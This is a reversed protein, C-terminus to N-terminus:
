QTARRRRANERRKANACTMCWRNKGDPATYFHHSTKLHGNRCTDRRANQSSPGDGRLCNVAQTVVEMHAPNVCRRNKCLHDITLGEPIPGVMAEYAIRHVTTQRRLRPDYLYGYGSKNVYGMWPWCDADPCDLSADRAFRVLLPAIRSM